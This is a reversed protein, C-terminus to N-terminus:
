LRVIRATPDAVGKTADRTNVSLRSHATMGACHYDRHDTAIVVCDAGVIPAGTLMVSAM